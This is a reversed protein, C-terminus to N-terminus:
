TRGDFGPHGPRRSGRGCNRGAQDARHRASQARRIARRARKAKGRRSDVTMAREDHRVHLSGPGINLKQKAKRLFSRSSRQDRGARRRRSARGLSDGLKGLQDRLRVAREVYGEPASGVAASPAAATPTASALAAGLPIELDLGALRAEGLSTKTGERVFRALLKKANARLGGKRVLMSEAAIRRVGVGCRIASIVDSGREYARAGSRAAAAVRISCASCGDISAGAVCTGARTATPAGPQGGAVGRLGERLGLASELEVRAAFGRGRQRELERGGVLRGFRDNEVVQFGLRVAVRHAQEVHARQQVRLTKCVGRRLEFRQGAVRGVHGPGPQGQARQVQLQALRRRRGNCQLFVDREHLSLTGGRSGGSRVAVVVLVSRLGLVSASDRPQNSSDCAALCCPSMRPASGPERLDVARLAHELHLRPARRQEGAFALERLRAFQNAARGLARRGICARLHHCFRL